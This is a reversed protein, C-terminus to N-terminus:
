SRQELALIWLSKRPLALCYINSTPVMQDIALSGVAAKPLIYPFSHPQTGFLTNVLALPRNSAGQSYIGGGGGRGGSNLFLSINNRVALTKEKGGSFLM